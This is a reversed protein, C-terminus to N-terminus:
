EGKYPEPLPMWALVCQYDDENDVWEGKEFEALGAFPKTDGVLEGDITVMYFGDKDPLRESCPIWGGHYHASSREMNAAQLKASLDEITDAANKLAAAIGWYEPLIDYAGRRLVKVQESIMSM